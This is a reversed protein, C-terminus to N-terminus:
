NDQWYKSPNNKVHRSNHFTLMETYSLANSPPAQAPRTDTGSLVWLSTRASEGKVILDLEMKCGWLQNGKGETSGKELFFESEGFQCSSADELDQYVSKAKSSKITVAELM